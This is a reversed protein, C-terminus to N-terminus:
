NCQWFAAISYRSEVPLGESFNEQGGVIEKVVMGMVMDMACAHKPYDKPSTVVLAATGVTPQGVMRGRFILAFAQRVQISDAGAPLQMRFLPVWWFGKQMSDSGTAKAELRVMHGKSLGVM